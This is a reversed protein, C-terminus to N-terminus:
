LQEVSRLYTDIPRLRDHLAQYKECINNLFTTAQNSFHYERPTLHIQRIHYLTQKLRAHDSVVDKDAAIAENSPKPCAILFRSFM